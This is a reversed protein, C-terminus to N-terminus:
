FVEIKFYKQPYRKMDELVVNLQKLIQELNEHVADDNLLKGATGEGKNLKNLISDASAASSSLSSYLTSDSVMKGITGQGADIKQVVAALNESLKNLNDYLTSDHVLKGFSGKKNNLSGTVKETNRATQAVDRAFTSDNLARAVLGQGTQLRKLLDELSALVKPIRDAAEEAKPILGEVDLTSFRTEIFEGNKLQREGQKGLTIEVYKDGLIGLTKISAQSSETIWEQFHNQVFLSVSVGFVGDREEYKFDGITGARIGGVTIFAGSNLSLVNPVFTHLTYKSGFKFTNTGVILIIFLFFALGTTIFIGVKVDQWSLNKRRTM